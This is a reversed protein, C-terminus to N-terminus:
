EETGETLREGDGGMAEQPKQVRTDRTEGETRKRM